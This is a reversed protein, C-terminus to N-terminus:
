AKYGRIWVKLGKGPTGSGVQDIDITIEADDALSTDTVGAPTAATASTKENEDISLKNTAMISTGAENIDLIIASGVPATNVSTKVGTVTMAFPMRFTLKATGTAINTTEDRSVDFFLEEERLYRILVKNLAGESNDHIWTYDNAPDLSAEAAATTLEVAM